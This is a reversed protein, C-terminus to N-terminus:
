SVKNHARFKVSVLWLDSQIHVTDVRISTTTVNSPWLESSSIRSHEKGILRRINDTRERVNRRNDKVEKM